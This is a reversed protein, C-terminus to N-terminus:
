RSGRHDSSCETRSADAHGPPRGGAPVYAPDRDPQGLPRRGRDFVSAPHRLRYLHAYGNGARLMREHSGSEVVRGRELHIIQDAEAVTLLDHSIVITTRGIM